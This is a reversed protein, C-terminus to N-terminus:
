GMGRMRQLQNILGYYGERGVGLANAGHANNNNNNNSDDKSETRAGTSSDAVMGEEKRISRPLVTGEEKASCREEAEAVRRALNDVLELRAEGEITGKFMGALLRLEEIRERAQIVLNAALLYSIEAAPNITKNSARGAANNLEKIFAPPSPAPSYPAALSLNNNVGIGGPNQEITASPLPWSMADGFIAIVEELRARVMCLMELRELVEPKHGKLSSSSSTTTPPAAASHSPGFRAVNTGVRELDEGLSM